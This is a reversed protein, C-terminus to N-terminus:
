DFDDSSGEKHMERIYDTIQTLRADEAECFQIVSEHLKTEHDLLREHDDKVLKSLALMNEKTNEGFKKDADLSQSMIDLIKGYKDRVHDDLANVIEFTQKGHRELLENALRYMERYHRSENQLMICGYALVMTIVALIGIIVLYATSNM